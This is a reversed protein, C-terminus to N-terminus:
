QLISATGYDLIRARAMRVVSDALHQGIEEALQVDELASLQMGWGSIDVADRMKARCAATVVRRHAFLTWRVLYRLYEEEKVQTVFTGVLDILISTAHSAVQCESLL